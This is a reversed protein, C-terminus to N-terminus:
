ASRRRPGAAVTVKQEVAGLREHWARLTYEGPPVDAAHVFRGDAGTV